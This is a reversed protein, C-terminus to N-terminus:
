ISLHWTSLQEFACISLHRISLHEFALHGFTMSFATTTDVIATLARVRLDEKTIKQRQYKAPMKIKMFDAISDDGLVEQVLANRMLIADVTKCDAERKDQLQQLEAQVQALRAERQYKHSMIKSRQLHESSAGSHERVHDEGARQDARFGLKLLESDPTEGRDIVLKLGAPIMSRCFGLRAGDHALRKCTGLARNIDVGAVIAGDPGRTVLGAREFGKEAEEPRCTDHYMPPVCGMARAITNRKTASIKLVECNSLADNVSTIVDQDAKSTHLGERKLWAKTRKFVSM